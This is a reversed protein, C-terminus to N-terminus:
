GGSKRRYIGRLRICAVAMTRVTEPGTTMQRRHSGWHFWVGIKGDQFWEPVEYHARLSDWSPEIPGHTHGPEVTSQACALSASGLLLTLLCHANGSM